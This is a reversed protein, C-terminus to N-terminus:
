RMRRARIGRLYNGILFTVILSFMLAGLIVAYDPLGLANLAIFGAGMVIWPLLILIFVMRHSPGPSSASTKTTPRKPIKKAL